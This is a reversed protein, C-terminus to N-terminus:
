RFAAPQSLAPIRRPPACARAGVQKELLDVRGTEDAGGLEGCRDLGRAGVRRTWDALKIADM